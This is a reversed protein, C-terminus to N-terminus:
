PKLMIKKHSLKLIKCYDPPPINEDVYFCVFKFGKLRYKILIFVLEIIKM